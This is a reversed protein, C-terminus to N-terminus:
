SRSTAWTPLRHYNRTYGLDGLVKGERGMSFGRVTHLRRKMQDDQLRSIGEGLREELLRTISGATRGGPAPVFGGVGGANSIIREAEASGIFYEPGFLSSQPGHIGISRNQLSRGRTHLREALLPNASNHYLLNSIMHNNSGQGKPYLKSAKPELLGIDKKLFPVSDLAEWGEHRQVGYRYGPPTSPIRESPGGASVHGVPQKRPGIYYDALSGMGKPTLRGHSDRTFNTTFRNNGFNDTTVSVGRKIEYPRKGTDELSSATRRLMSDTLRDKLRLSKESVEPAEQMGRYLKTFDANEPIRAGGKNLSKRAQELLQDYKRRDGSKALRAMVTKFASAALKEITKQNYATMALRSARSGVVEGKPEKLLATILRRQQKLGGTKSLLAGMM